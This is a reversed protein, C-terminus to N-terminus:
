FEARGVGLMNAPDDKEVAFKAVNGFLIGGSNVGIAFSKPCREVVPRRMVIGLM